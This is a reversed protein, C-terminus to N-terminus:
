FLTLLYIYILEYEYMWSKIEYKLIIIQYKSLGM